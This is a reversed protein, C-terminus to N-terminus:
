HFSYPYLCHPVPVRNPATGSICRPGFPNSGSRKDFGIAALGSTILLKLISALVWAFLLLLGAGLGRLLFQAIQDLLRNLPDTISALGLLQFFVILVLLMLVYYVARSAWQEVYVNRAKNGDFTWQGLVQNLRVRRLGRRLLLCILHCGMWGIILGGMAILLAPLAKRVRLAAQGFWVILLAVIFFSFAVFCTLFFKRESRGIAHFDPKASYQYQKWLLAMGIAGIIAADFYAKNWLAINGAVGLCARASMVLLGLSIAFFISEKHGDGAV